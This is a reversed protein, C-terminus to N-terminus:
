KQSKLSALEKEKLLIENELQKKRMGDQYMVSSVLRVSDFSYTKILKNITDVIIKRDEKKVDKHTRIEM